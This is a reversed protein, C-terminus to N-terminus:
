SPRRYNLTTVLLGPWTREAVLGAGAALRAVDRRSVHDPDGAAETISLRGGRRLVRTAETMAKARDPVEGLVTAMFVVEFSEDAYPLDEASGVSAEFNALGRRHLRKAAIAIMGEQADFLTLRGEPLQRAVAPSFFGPGCGIELVHDGRKLGLRRVIRSAPAILNRLPSLLWGAYEVPYMGPGSVREWSSAQQKM